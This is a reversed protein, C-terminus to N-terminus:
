CALNFNFVETGLMSSGSKGKYVAMQRHAVDTDERDLPLEKGGGLFFRGRWESTDKGKEKM